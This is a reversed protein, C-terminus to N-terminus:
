APVSIFHTECTWGNFHFQKIVAMLSFMVTGAEGRTM